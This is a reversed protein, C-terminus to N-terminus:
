TVVALHHDNGLSNRHQGDHDISHLFCYSFSGAPSYYPLSNAQGELGPFHCALLKDLM